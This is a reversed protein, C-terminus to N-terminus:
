WFYIRNQILLILVPAAADSCINARLDTVYITEQSQSKGVALDKRLVVRGWIDNFPKVNSLNNAFWV